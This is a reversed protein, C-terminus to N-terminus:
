KRWAKLWTVLGGISLRRSVRTIVSFVRSPLRPLTRSSSLLWHSRSCSSLGTSDVASNAAIRACSPRRRRRPRSCAERHGLALGPQAGRDLADAALRLLAHAGAAGM